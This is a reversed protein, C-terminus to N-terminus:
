PFETIMQALGFPLHVMEVSSQNLFDIAYGKRYAEHYVVREIGSAIILKACDICPSMTVYLTAQELSIGVRSAYAIANQEAHITRICGGRQSDIICGAEDCQAMKSPAGNYGISVIRTDKCIVAGIKARLCTSRKGVIQAIAMYMQDYTPRPFPKGDMGQGHLTFLEDYREVLDHFPDNM